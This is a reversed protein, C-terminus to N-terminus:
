YCHTSDGFCYSIVRPPSNIPPSTVTFRLYDCDRLYKNQLATKRATATTMALVGKFERIVAVIASSFRMLSSLRTAVDASITDTLRKKPSSESKM